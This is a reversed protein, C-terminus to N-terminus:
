EEGLEYKDYCYECYRKDDITIYSGGIWEGCRNCRYTEAYDGHCNPCGWWEEYAPSGFYEGRDEKWKAPESFIRGCELCIYM